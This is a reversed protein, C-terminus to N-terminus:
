SNEYFNDKLWFYRRYLSALDKVKVFRITEAWKRKKKYRWARLPTWVAWIHLRCHHLRLSIALVKEGQSRHTSASCLPGRGPHLLPINRFAREWSTNLLLKGLCSPFFPHNWRLLNVLNNTVQICRTRNRSVGSTTQSFGPTKTKIKLSPFSMM